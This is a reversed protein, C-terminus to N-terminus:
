TESGCATRDFAEAFVSFEPGIGFGLGLGQFEPASSCSLDWLGAGALMFGQWRSPELVGAWDWSGLGLGQFERASSCSLDWLGAGALTFGQWRSPEESCAPPNVFFRKLFFISHANFRASGMMM